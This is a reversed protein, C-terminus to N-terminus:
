PCYGAQSRQEHSEGSYQLSIGNGVRPISGVDRASAHPNEVVASSPFGYLSYRMGSATIRIDPATHIGVRKRDRAQFMEPLRKETEHIIEILLSVTRMPACTNVLPPAIHLQAQSSSPSSQREGSRKETGQWALPDKQPSFSFGIHLSSVRHICM